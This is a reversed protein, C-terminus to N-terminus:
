AATKRFLHKPFAPRVVRCRRKLPPVPGGRSTEDPEAAKSGSPQRFRPESRNRCDTVPSSTAPPLGRRKRIARREPRANTLRNESRKAFAPVALVGGVAPRRTWLSSPDHRDTEPFPDESGWVSASRLTMRIAPGCSGTAEKPLDALGDVGVRRLLHPCRSSPTPGPVPRIKPDPKAFPHRQLPNRGPEADCQRFPLSRKGTRREESRPDAPLFPTAASM